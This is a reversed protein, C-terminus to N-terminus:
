REYIGDLRGTAVVRGSLAALVSRRGFSVGLTLPRDVAFLQFVYSHPGHGSVPRPGSYHPRRISNRGMRLPSVDAMGGEAIGSWAPPIGAVVAHVFPRPLPASPDEVLLVLEKAQEPVGSWELPPSVNQSVGNGAYRDPIGGESTFAPGRLEL